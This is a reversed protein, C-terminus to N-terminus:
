SGNENVSLNFQDVNSVVASLLTSFLLLHALNIFDFEKLKELFYIRYM